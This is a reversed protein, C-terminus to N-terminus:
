NLHNLSLNLESFAKYHCMSSMALHIQKIDMKTMDTTQAPM